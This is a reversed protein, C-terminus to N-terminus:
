PVTLTELNSMCLLKINWTYNSSISKQSSNYQRIIYIMTRCQYMYTSRKREDAIQCGIPIILTICRHCFHQTSQITKCSSIHRNDVPVDAECYIYGYLVGIVISYCYNFCSLTVPIKAKNNVLAVIRKQKKYERDDYQKASQCYLWLYQSDTEQLEIKAKKLIGM